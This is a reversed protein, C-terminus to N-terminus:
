SRTLALCDKFSIDKDQRPEAPLGLVREGIINRLIEDTGGAIRSGPAKLLAEQFVASMPSLERDDIVGFQEQLEIAYSALDQLQNANVIKGISSEPGPTQNRSLATMTRYRTLKIGEAQVYWDALRQRFGGEQLVTGSGRPLRRALQLIEAYDAGKSGGIALRENMLTILASKWGAGVNGLRQGDPIRLDTFFVENFSSKGSIQHIPRVEIASAHMDVWFMTLGKHKPVDPDTRVLLLGFDALHANTTWVKQGNVIWGDGDRVARARVGALDSGAAPESFLQCWIEEGRMAPAVFRRKTADDALTMVTPLCMGLGVQFIGAPVDYLDEEQTFIVHQMPTGGQGGWERPWTICAYGHNAKALQWAKAAALLDPPALRKSIEPRDLRKLEANASLFARVQLRYDAEEATDNFDM